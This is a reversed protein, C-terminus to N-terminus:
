SLSALIRERLPEPFEGARLSRCVDRGLDLTGFVSRCRECLDEDPVPFRADRDLAEQKAKLLVLCEERDHDPPGPSHGPLAEALASRVKLRARHLRTKVTNESVGLVEAIEAVKFELVEKLVFPLRFDLPLEAIAGRVADIAESMAARESPDDGSPLQIVGEDGSPLLREIPELRRPEGARRRRMRQCARSAITYLWTSPKARGEFGEWSSLARMFTEQVLDEAADPSDCMRLGLSYVLPGYEDFLRAIAERSPADESPTSTPESM